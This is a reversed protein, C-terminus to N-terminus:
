PCPVARAYVEEELVLHLNREGTLEEIDPIELPFNTYIVVDGKSLGVGDPTAVVIGRQSRANFLPSGEGPVVVGDATKMEEQTIKRILVWKNRPEIEWQTTKALAVASGGEKAKM